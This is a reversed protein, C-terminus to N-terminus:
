FHKNIIYNKIILTHISSYMSPRSLKYVFPDIIIPRSPLIITYSEKQGFSNSQYKKIPGCILLISKTKRKFVEHANM